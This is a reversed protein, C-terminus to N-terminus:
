AGPWALKISSGMTVVGQDCLSPLIIPNLSMRALLIYHTTTFPGLVFEINSIVIMFPAHGNMIIMVEEFKEDQLAHLRAKAPLGNEPLTVVVPCGKIIEFDRGDSRVLLRFDM